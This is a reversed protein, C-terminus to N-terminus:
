RVKSTPYDPTICTTSFLQARRSTRPVASPKVSLSTQLRRENQKLDLHAVYMGSGIHSELYGEAVLQDFAYVITNRSVGLHTVLDRTSPLRIGAPLQGSIIM